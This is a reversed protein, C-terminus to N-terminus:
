DDSESMEDAMWTMEGALHNLGFMRWRLKNEENIQIELIKWEIARNRGIYWFTPVAKDLQEANWYPENSSGIWEWSEVSELHRKAFDNSQKLLKYVGIGDLEKKEQNMREKLGFKAKLIEKKSLM